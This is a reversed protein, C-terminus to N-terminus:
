MMPLLPSMFIVKSPINEVRGLEPLTELCHFRTIDLYEFAPYMGDDDPLKRFTTPGRASGGGGVSCM